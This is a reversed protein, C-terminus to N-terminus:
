EVGHFGKQTRRAGERLIYHLLPNVGTVAAHPHRRLYRGTDFQRSPNRLERFGYFLYHLLPPIGSDAVEPYATLYYNRDFL